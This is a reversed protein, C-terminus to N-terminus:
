GNPDSPVLDTRYGRDALYDLLLSRIEDDAPLEAEDCPSTHNELDTVHLNGTLLALEWRRQCVMVMARTPGGRAVGLVPLGDEQDRSGAIVIPRLRDRPGLLSVGEMWAPVEVGLIDLITPPIDLNQANSRTDLEAVFSRGPPPAVILPLRRRADHEPGHDSWFVVLADRPQAEALERLTLLRRLYGDLEAPDGRLHAMVFIPGDSARLLDLAGAFIEDAREATDPTSPLEVLDGGFAHLARDRVRDWLLELFFSTWDLRGDAAVLARDLLGSRRPHDNYVDFGGRLNWSGPDVHFTAGKLYGRYGLLQLMAPLHRYSDVGRLSHRGNLKHSTFPHRGTAVSPVSGATRDANAFVNEFVAGRDALLRFTRQGASAHEETQEGPQSYVEFVEAPLAEASVLFVDPLDDDSISSDTLSDAPSLSYGAKLPLLWWAVVSITMLLLGGGWLARLVASGRSTQLAGIWDSVRLVAFALALYFVAGYILREPGRQTLVGFGFVTVTFNDVLLLTTTTLLAAPLFALPLRTLSRLAPRHDGASGYVVVAPVALLVMAPWGALLIPLPTLLLVWLREAVELYSLFSVKTVQFLWELAVHAFVALLWLAGVAALLSLLSDPRLRPRFVSRLWRLPLTSASM